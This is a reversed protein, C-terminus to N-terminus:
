PGRSNTVFIAKGNAKKLVANLFIQDVSESFQGFLM